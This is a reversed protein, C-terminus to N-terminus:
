AATEEIRPLTLTTENDAAPVPPQDPRPPITIACLEADPYPDVLVPAPRRLLWCPRGHRRRSGRSVPPKSGPRRPGAPRVPCPGRHRRVARVVRRAGLCLGLLVCVAVGAALGWLLVVGFMVLVTAVVTLFTNV